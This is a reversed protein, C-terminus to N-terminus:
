RSSKRRSVKVVDVTVSVNKGQRGVSNVTYGRIVDDQQLARLYDNVFKVMRRRARKGADTDETVFGAREFLQDYSITKNMSSKPNMLVHIFWLITSAVGTQERSMRKARRGNQDVPRTETLLRQPYDVVQGIQQAHQYTIPDALLQYRVFRNGASDIGQFVTADVLHGSIEAKTFPLGTEPNNIHHRKAQATWDIRGDIQRLKMVRQHIEAQLEQSPKHYGMQEAIQLPSVVTNGANKLTVISSIVRVDERDIPATLTTLAEPADDDYSLGFDIMLQGRKKGVNLSVGGESFLDPSTLVHSTKANPIIHRHPTITDVEPVNGSFGVGLSDEIASEEAWAELLRADGDRGDDVAHAIAISAFVRTFSVDDDTGDTLTMVMREADVKWVTEYDPYLDPAGPKMDPTKLLNIGTISYFGNDSLGYGYIGAPLVRDLGAGRLVAESMVFTPSIEAGDQTTALCSHITTIGERAIAERVLELARDKQERTLRIGTDTM